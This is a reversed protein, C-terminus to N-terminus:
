RSRAEVLAALRKPAQLQYSALLLEEVEDWDVEVLDLFLGVWGHHGVYPPVFFRRPDDSVLVAADGRPLRVELAVRGDGHHDDLYYAFRKRRVSFGVDRGDRVDVEPLASCLEIVRERREAIALADALKRARGAPM